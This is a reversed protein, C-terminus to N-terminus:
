IAMIQLTILSISQWCKISTNMRATKIPYFSLPTIIDQIIRVVVNADTCAYYSKTVHISQSPSQENKVFIEVCEFYLIIYNFVM